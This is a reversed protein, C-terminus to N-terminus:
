NLAKEKNNTTTKAPQLINYIEAELQSFFESFSLFAEFEIDLIDRRFAPDSEKNELCAFFRLIYITIARFLTQLTM